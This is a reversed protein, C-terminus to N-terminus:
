SLFFTLLAYISVQFLESLFM